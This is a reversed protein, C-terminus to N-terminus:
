PQMLIVALLALCLGAIERKSIREGFLFPSLTVSLIVMVSTRVPFAVTGTMQELALMLFLITGVTSVGRGLGFLAERMRPRQRRVATTVGSALLVVVYMALLFTWRGGGAHLTAAAKIVLAVAGSFCFASGLLALERASMPERGPRVQGLLLIAAVAVGLGVAQEADPYEAWILMSGITPIIMSLTVITWSIGLRAGSKILYHYSLVALFLGTGAGVGLAVLRPEFSTASDFVVGVLAALAATGFTVPMMALPRCGSRLASKYSLAWWLNFIVCLMLYSV